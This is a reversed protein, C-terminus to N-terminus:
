SSLIGMVVMKKANEDIVAYLEEELNIKWGFFENTNM